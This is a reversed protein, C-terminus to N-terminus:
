NEGLKIHKGLKLVCTTGEGFSSYMSIGYQDGYFMKLRENVNLIGISNKETNLGSFSNSGNILLAQILKVREDPIGTGNDIISAIIYDDKEEIIINITRKHLVNKFGHVICNEVIPQFIFKPCIFQEFQKSINITHDFNMGLKGKYIKFYNIVHEIEDLLYTQRNNNSINYRVFKGLACLMDVTTNDKNIEAHMRITELTNFLFHPKMQSQLAAYEAEKKQIETKYVTHILENIQRIMKNFSLILIGIEDAYSITEFEILKNNEVSLIHNTLRFVRNVVSSIILYYILSLLFLIMVIIILLTYMQKGTFSATQTLLFLKENFEPISLTIPSSKIARVLNTNPTIQTLVKISNSNLVYYNNGNSMLLQENPEVVNFSQFLSNSGVNIEIIGLEKLYKKDYLKMYYKIQPSSTETNNILWIRRTPTLNKKLMALDGKFEKIGTIYYGPNIFSDKYRYIKIDEILNNEMLITTFLPDIQTIYQYVEDSANNYLGSVYDTLSDNYQLLPYINEIQSSLSKFNSYAQELIKQKDSVYKYQIDKTINAYFLTGLFIVPIFFVIFYCLVMKTVIKMNMFKMYFKKFFSRLKKM